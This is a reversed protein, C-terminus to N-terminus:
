LLLIADQARGEVTMGTGKTINIDTATLQMGKARSAIKTLREGINFDTLEWNEFILELLELPMDRPQGLPIRIDQEHVLLDVLVNLVPVSKPKHQEDIMAHFRGLLQTPGTNGLEIATQQMFVNLRFGSKIFQWWYNHPNYHYELILHALVDRVRWGDCLSATNWQEDTLTSLYLYIDERATKILPWVTEEPVHKFM